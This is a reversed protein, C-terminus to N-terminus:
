IYIIYPKQKEGFALDQGWAQPSFSQLLPAKTEDTEEINAAEPEMDSLFHSPVVRWHFFPFESQKLM